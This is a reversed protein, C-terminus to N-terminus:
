GRVVLFATQGARQTSPLSEQALLRIRSLQQHDIVAAAVTRGADRLRSAQLDKAKSLVLTFTASNSGPHQVCRARNDTIRVSVHVDIRSVGILNEAVHRM